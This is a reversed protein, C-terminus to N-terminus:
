GPAHDYADAADKFRQLQTYSRALMTWGQADNPNEEMRKALKAVNAEIAQPSM